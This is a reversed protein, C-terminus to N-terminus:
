EKKRIIMKQEKSRSVGKKDKDAPLHTIEIDDDEWEYRDSLTTIESM